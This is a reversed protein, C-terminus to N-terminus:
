SSCKVQLDLLILFVTRNRAWRRPYRSLRPRMDGGQWRQTPPVFTSFVENVGLGFTWGESGPAQRVELHKYGSSHEHRQPVRRPRHNGLSAPCSSTTRVFAMGESNEQQGFCELHSPVFFHSHFHFYIWKRANNQHFMIRLLEQACETSVGRRGPRWSSKAVAWVLHVM